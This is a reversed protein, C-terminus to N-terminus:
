SKNLSTAGGYDGIVAALTGGGGAIGTLTFTRTGTQGNFGMSGTNTFNVLSASTITGGSTGISYLRDTSASSGNYHLTGGNLVLNTASNSSQGIGSPTGGNALSSISLTGGLVDTAGQYTNGAALTTTGNGD